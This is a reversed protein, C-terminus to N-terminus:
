SPPPNERRAGSCKATTVHAHINAAQAVAICTVYASRSIRLAYVEASRVLTDDVLALAQSEAVVGTSRIADKSKEFVTSGNRAEVHASGTRSPNAWAVLPPALARSHYM